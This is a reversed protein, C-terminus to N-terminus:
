LSFKGPASFWVQSWPIGASQLAIFDSLSPGIWGNVVNQIFCYRLGGSFQAALGNHLQCRLVPSSGIKFEVASDTLTDYSDPRIEKGNPLFLRHNGEGGFLARGIGEGLEVYDLRFTNRVGPKSLDFRTHNPLKRRLIFGPPLKLM